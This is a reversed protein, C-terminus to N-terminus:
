NMQEFRLSLKGRVVDWARITKDDAYSFILSKNSTAWIDKVPGKHDKLCFLQVGDKSSWIRITSDLSGSAVWKGGSHTEWCSIKDAHNKTLTPEGSGGLRWLRITNDYSGSVFFRGHRSIALQKAGDEHGICQLRRTGDKTDWVDVEGSWKGSVIVKAHSSLAISTLDLGGPGEIHLIQKGHKVDFLVINGSSGWVVQKGDDSFDLGVVGHVKSICAVRTGSEIEWVSVTHNDCAATMHTSDASVAVLRLKKGAPPHVCALRKAKQWDWIQVSGDESVVVLLRGDKSLKVSELGSAQM